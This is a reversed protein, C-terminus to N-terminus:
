IIHGDGRVTGDKCHFLLDTNNGFPFSTHNKLQLVENGVWLDKFRPSTGNLFSSATAASGSGEVASLFDYSNLWLKELGSQTIMDQVNKWPQTQGGSITTLKPLELLKLNPATDVAGNKSTILEPCYLMRLETMTGRCIGSGSFDDYLRPAYIRRLNSCNGFAFYSAIQGRVQPLTLYPISKLGYRTGNNTMYVGISSPQDSDEGYYDSSYLSIVYPGVDPYTHEITHSFSTDTEDYEFYEWSGDGWDVSCYDGKYVLKFNRDTGVNPQSFDVVIYSDSDWDSVEDTVVEISRPNFYYITGDIAYYKSWGLKTIYTYEDICPMWAEDDIPYVSGDAAFERIIARDTKKFFLGSQVNFYVQFDAESRSKKVACDLSEYWGENAPFDASTSPSWPHDGNVRPFGDKFGDTAYFVGPKMSWVDPLSNPNVIKFGHPKLTVLAPRM